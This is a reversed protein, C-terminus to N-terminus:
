LRFLHSWVDLEAKAGTWSTTRPRTPQTAHSDDTLSSEFSLLRKQLPPRRLVAVPPPTKTTFLLIINTNKNEKHQDKRVRKSPVDPNMVCGHLQRKTGDLWYFIIWPPVVGTVELFIIALQAVFSLRFASFIARQM